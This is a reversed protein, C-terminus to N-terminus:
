SHVNPVISVFFHAIFFVVIPFEVITSVIFADIFQSVQITFKLDIIFFLNLHYYFYLLMSFSYLVLFHVVILKM